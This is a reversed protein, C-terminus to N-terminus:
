LVIKLIAFTIKEAIGMASILNKLCVENEATEGPNQSYLAAETARAAEMVGSSVFRDEKDCVRRAFECLTEDKARSFGCALLAREIRSWSKVSCKANQVLKKGVIYIYLLILGFAIFVAFLERDKEDNVNQQEQQEHPQVNGQTQAKDPESSTNDEREPPKQEQSVTGAETVETNTGLSATPEFPIWGIGEFYVECWAHAREETVTVTESEGKPVNYGSVYRAPIGQTRLMVTMATAFHVCYGEKATLFNEVFDDSFEYDHEPMLTYRNTGSLWQELRKARVYSNGSGMVSRATEAVLSDQAYSTQCFLENIKQMRDESESFSDANETMWADFEASGTNPIRARVTYTKKIFDTAFVEGYNNYIIGGENEGFDIESVSVPILLAKMNRVVPTITLEIQSFVGEPTDAAPLGTCFISRYDSGQYKAFYPYNYYPHLKEWRSGSFVNDVNCRLKIARDTKVKVVSSRGIATPGGLTGDKYNFGVDSLSFGSGYQGISKYATWSKVKKNLEENPSNDNALTTIELACMIVLVAALAMLGTGTLSLKNIKIKGKPISGAFFLVSSVAATVIGATNENGLFCPVAAIIILLAPVALSGGKRGYWLACWGVAVFATYLPFTLEYDLKLFISLLTLVVMSVGSVASIIVSKAEIILSFVISFIIAAAYTVPLKETEFGFAAGVSVVASIGGLASVFMASIERSLKNVDM